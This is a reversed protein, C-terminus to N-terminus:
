GHESGGHGAGSQCLACTEEYNRMYAAVENGHAVARLGVVHAMYAVVNLRFRCHQDTCSAEHGEIMKWLANAIERAQTAEPAQDPTVSDPM